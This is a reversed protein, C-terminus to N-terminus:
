VVERATRAHAGFAAFAGIAILAAMAIVIRPLDLGAGVTSPIVVTPDAAAPVIIKHELLWTVIKGWAALAAASAGSAFLVIATLWTFLDDDGSQASM